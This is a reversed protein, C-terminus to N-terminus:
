LGRFLGEGLFPLITVLGGVTVMQISFVQIGSENSIHLHLDFPEVIRLDPIWIWSIPNKSKSKAFAECYICLLNVIFFAKSYNEPTCFQIRGTSWSSIFITIGTGAILTFQLLVFQTDSHHMQTALDTSCEPKVMIFFLKGFFSPLILIRANGMVISSFNTSLIQCSKFSAIWTFM